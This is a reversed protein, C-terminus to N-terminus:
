VFKKENTITMLYLGNLFDDIETKNQCTINPNKEPDCREFVVMVNDANPYRYNSQIFLKDQEAEDM